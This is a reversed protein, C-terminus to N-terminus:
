HGHHAAYSWPRHLLRFLRHIVPDGGDGDGSDSLLEGGARRNGLRPWVLHLGSTGVPNHDAGATHGGARDLHGAVDGAWDAGPSSSGHYQAVFTSVYTIVGFPFCLVTFHLLGAPLAAAMAANSYWLLFMRDTFTMITWFCTSVILPLALTLVERGGSPRKWWDSLGGIRM